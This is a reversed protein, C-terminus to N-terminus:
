IRCGDVLNRIYGELAWDLNTMDEANYRSFDFENKPWVVVEGDADVMPPVIRLTAMSRKLGFIPSEARIKATAGGLELMYAETADFPFGKAQCEQNSMIEIAQGMIAKADPLGSARLAADIWNGDNQGDRWQELNSCVVTFAFGRDRRRKFAPFRESWAAMSSPLLIGDFHEDALNLCLHSLIAACRYAIPPEIVRSYHSFVHVAASYLSLEPDYFRETLYRNQMNIEVFREDPPVNENIYTFISDYESAVAITELLAGVTLPQRILNSSTERDNFRVFIIPREMDLYGFTDIELGVSLGILWPKQVGHKPQEDNVVRYYRPLLLRREEDYIAILKAFDVESGDRNRRGLLRYADYVRVMFGRGWLTGVVDAWHTLEHDITAAIELSKNHNKSRAAQALDARSYADLSVLQARPLFHAVRKTNPFRSCRVVEASEKIRFSM